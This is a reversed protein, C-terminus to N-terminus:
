VRNLSTMKNKNSKEITRWNIPLWVLRRLCPTNGINGCSKNKVNKKYIGSFYALLSSAAAAALALVLALPVAVM